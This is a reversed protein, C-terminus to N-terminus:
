KVYRDTRYLAQHERVFEVTRLLGEDLSITPSWGVTERALTNDSVLKMVESLAPRLRENDCVLPKDVGMLELIRHAFWGVSYTSGTGLNLTMGEVGQTSAAAM